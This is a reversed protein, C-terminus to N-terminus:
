KIVAFKGIHEGVDPADVHFIYLGYAIDMGDDSILDWPLSGDAANSDKTLTKVLQGSITFIRITCRAPLHTFEVRRDGRGTSYLTRREWSATGIYPNPVVSIKAMDSKALVPDTRSARTKFEFYDGQAFPRWTRIVFRDGDQPPTPDLTFPRGWTMQYTFSYVTPGTYGDVIRITDGYSLTGDRDADDVLFKARQGSTLNTIQFNVPMKPFRPPLSFVATDAFNAFWRLEYDAPWRVDRAANLHDPIVRISVGPNGKVWGTATDNVAVATDNRFSFTIGDFPVSYMDPGFSTANVHLQLTDAATNTPVRLISYSTTAYSPIAGSADFVVRYTSGDKVAGPDLVQLTLAGTGIGQTVQSVNGEVQAPLYGAAAANPTLIACNIDIFKLTGVADETIIKPCETPQLGTVGKKPDGMNYSVVAYYYRVGNV